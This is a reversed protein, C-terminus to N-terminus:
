IATSSALLNDNAKDRDGTSWHHEFPRLKPKLVCLVRPSKATLLLLLLLLLARKSSLGFRPGSGFAM